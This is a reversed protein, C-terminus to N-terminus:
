SFVVKQCIQEKELGLSTCVQTMGRLFLEEGAIFTAIEKDGHSLIDQLRKELGKKTLFFEGLPVLKRIWTSWDTESESDMLYLVQMSAGKKVLQSALEFLSDGGDGQGVLLFEM